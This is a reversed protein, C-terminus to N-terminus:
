VDFMFINKQKLFSVFFFKYTQHKHMRDSLKSTYNKTLNTNVTNSSIDFKSFIIKKKEVNALEASM